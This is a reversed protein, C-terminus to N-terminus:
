LLAAAQGGPDAPFEMARWRIGDWRLDHIAIFDIAIRSFDAPGLGEILSTLLVRIVVGHAVVAFTQGPHRAAVALFTPMVRRRIDAYSEAGEHTFDLDGAMWRTKAEAYTEWGEELAKGSMPGIRREHLSAVREPVLGCALGIPEATEVARRM